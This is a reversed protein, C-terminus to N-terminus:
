DVFEVEIIFNEEPTSFCVRHYPEGSSLKDFMDSWDIALDDEIKTTAFEFLNNDLAALAQLLNRGEGHLVIPEEYTTTLTLKVM